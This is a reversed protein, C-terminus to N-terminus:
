FLTFEPDSKVAEAVFRTVESHKKPYRKNKLWPEASHSLLWGYQQNETVPMLYLENPARPTQLGRILQQHRAHSGQHIESSFPLPKQLTGSEAPASCSGPGLQESALSNDERSQLAWFQSPKSSSVILKDGIPNQYGLHTLGFFAM